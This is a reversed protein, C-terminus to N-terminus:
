PKYYEEACRYSNITVPNIPVIMQCEKPWDAFVILGKEGLPTTKLREMIGTLARTVKERTDGDKINTAMGYEHKLQAIVDNLPRKPPIYLSIKTCKM